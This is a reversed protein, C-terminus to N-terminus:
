PVDSLVAMLLEMKNLFNKGELREWKIQKYIIGGSTDGIEPTEHVDDVEM